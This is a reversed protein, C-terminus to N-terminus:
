SIPPRLAPDAPARAMFPQGTPAKIQVSVIALNLAPTTVTDSLYHGHCGGHHHAMGHDAEADGEADKGDAHGSSSSTIEDFCGMPEIAHVVSGSTMTVGLMIAALLLWLRKM